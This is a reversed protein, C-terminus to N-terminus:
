KRVLKRHLQALLSDNLNFNLFSCPQSVAPQLFDVFVEWLLNRPIYYVFIWYRSNPVRKDKKGKRQIKNLSETRKKKLELFPAGQKEYRYTYM